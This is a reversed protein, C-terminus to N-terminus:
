GQDLHDGDLCIFQLQAVGQLGRHVDGLVSLVGHTFSHHEHCVDLTVFVGTVPDQLAHAKYEVSVSQWCHIMTETVAM